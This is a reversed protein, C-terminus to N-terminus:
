IGDEWHSSFVFPASMEYVDECPDSAFEGPTSWEERAWEWAREVGCVLGQADPPLMGVPDRAKLGQRWVLEVFGSAVKEYVARREMSIFYRHDLKAVM